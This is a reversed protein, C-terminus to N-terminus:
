LFHTCESFTSDKGLTKIQARAKSCIQNIHSEFSLKCDINIGLLREFDSNKIQSTRMNVHLNKGYSILLHCKRANGQLGNETFWQFLNSSM